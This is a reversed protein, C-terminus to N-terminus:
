ISACWKGLAVAPFNVLFLHMGAYYVPSAFIFGDASKAKEAFLNVADTLVCEGHNKCYGCAMCGGLPKNGLWIIDSGVGNKTLSSAVEELARECCGDKLPSGNLLLVKMM